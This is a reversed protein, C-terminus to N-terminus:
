IFYNFYDRTTTFNFSWFMIQRPLECYRLAVCVYNRQTLTCHERGANSIIILLCMYICTIGIYMYSHTGWITNYVQTAVSGFSNNIFHSFIFILNCFRWFSISVVSRQVFENSHWECLRIFMCIRTSTRLWPLSCVICDVRGYAPSYLHLLAVTATLTIFDCKGILM